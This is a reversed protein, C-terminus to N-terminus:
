KKPLPPRNYLEVVYDQLQGGLFNMCATVGLLDPTSLERLMEELTLTKAGGPLFENFEYKRKERLIEAASNDTDAKSQLTKLADLAHGLRRSLRISGDTSEAHIAKLMRRVGAENGMGSLEVQINEPIHPAMFPGINFEGLDRLYGSIEMLRSLVFVSPRYRVPEM